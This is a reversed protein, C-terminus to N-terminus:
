AMARMFADVDDWVDRMHVTVSVLRQLHPIAVIPVDRYESEPQLDLQGDGWPDAIEDLRRGAQFVCWTQYSPMDMVIYAPRAGSDQIAEVQADIEAKLKRGAAPDTHEIGM